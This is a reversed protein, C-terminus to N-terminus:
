IFNNFPYDNDEVDNFILKKVSVYDMAVEFEVDNIKIFTHGSIGSKQYVSVLSTEPILILTTSIEWDPIDLNKWFEYEREDMHAIDFKKVIPLELPFM